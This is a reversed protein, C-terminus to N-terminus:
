FSLSLLFHLGSDNEKEGDEVVGSCWLSFIHLRTFGNVVSQTGNEIFCSCSRSACCLSTFSVSYLHLSVSAMSISSHHSSGFILDRERKKEWRDRRRNWWDQSDTKKEQKTRWTLGSHSQSLWVTVWHDLQEEGTRTARPPLCWTHMTWQLKAVATLRESLLSDGRNVTIKLTGPQIKPDPIM